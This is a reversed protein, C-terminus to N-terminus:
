GQLNGLSDLLVRLWNAAAGLALIAVVIVSLLVRWVWSKTPLGGIREKMENVTGALEGHDRHLKLTEGWFGEEEKRAQNIEEEELGELEEVGEKLRRILNRKGTSM